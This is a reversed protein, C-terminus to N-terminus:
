NPLDFDMADGDDFNTPLTNILEGLPNDKTPIAQIGNDKLFQRIVSLDSASVDESNLRDKMVKALTAHLEGLAEEKARNNSGSM